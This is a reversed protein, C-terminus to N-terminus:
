SFFFTYAPFDPLFLGIWRLKVRSLLIDEIGAIGVPPIASLFDFDAL